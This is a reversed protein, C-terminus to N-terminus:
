VIEVCVAGGQGGGICASAVGISQKRRKLEYILDISIRLGTAAINHGIAIAGGNVNTADRPLGLEKEAALYQASFAENIEFLDVDSKQMGLKELLGNIAPVPGQGMLLPDVTAFHYGRLLAIYPIGNEDAFERDMLVAAAAGDSIQSATGPTVLGNAKVLPRLKALEEVTADYRTGEDRWVCLAHGDEDVADVAFSGRLYDDGNAESSRNWQHLQAHKAREHSLCSFAICEDLTIGMRAGYEEATRPMTTNFRYHNFGELLYDASPADTFGWVDDKLRRGQHIMNTRSMNETAFSIVCNMRQVDDGTLLDYADALTQFGTGCIRQTTKGPAINLNDTDGFASAVRTAVNRPLYIQQNHSDVYIMGAVVHDIRIKALDVGSRKLAEEMAFVGLDEAPLANYYGGHKGIPTRAADVIVAERRKKSM